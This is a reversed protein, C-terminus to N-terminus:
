RRRHLTATPTSRLAMLTGLYASAAPPGGNGDFGRAGDGRRHHDRRHCPHGRPHSRRHTTVAVRRHLSRRQRGGRHPAPGTLPRPRGGDGSSNWGPAADGAVTTIVGTPYTLRRVNSGPTLRSSSSTEPPMLGFPNRYDLEAATAPGGDGSAPGPGTGAITTIVGTAHNVERIRLNGRDSIFLDGAADTALGLPISLEAGRAPGGDGSFGQTGNGAVTTIIGTALDIKRVVQDTPDSFYM